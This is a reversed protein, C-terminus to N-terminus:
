QSDLRASYYMLLLLVIHASNLHKHIEEQWETGAGITTQSWITISNERAFPRLHKELNKLHELDEDAHSCLICIEITKPM